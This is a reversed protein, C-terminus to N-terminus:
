LNKKLINKMIDTCYKSKEIMNNIFNNVADDGLYSSFSKTIKDDVCVLKNGYSFAVHKKINTWTLNM